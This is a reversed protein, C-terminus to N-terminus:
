VWARIRGGIRRRRRDRRTHHERRDTWQTRNSEGGPWDRPVPVVDGQDNPRRSHGQGVFDHQRRPRASPIPWSTVVYGQLLLSIGVSSVIYVESGEVVMDVWRGPLSNGDEGMRASGSLNVKVQM